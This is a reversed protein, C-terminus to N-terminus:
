RSFRGVSVPRNYHLIQHSHMRMVMVNLDSHHDYAPTMTFIHVGMRVSIRMPTLAAMM